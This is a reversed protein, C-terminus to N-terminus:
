GNSCYLRSHGRSHTASCIADTIIHRALYLGGSVVLDSIVVRSALTDVRFLATTDSKQISFASTSDVGNRFTNIGSFLQSTSRKAINSKDALDTTAIQVGNFKPLRGVTATVTGVNSINTINTVQSARGGQVGTSSGVLSLFETGNYYGLQKTDQDFYLQGTVAGDPKTSPAVVISGNVRLQGNISVTKAGGISVLEASTLEDFPIKVPSFCDVQRNSQEPKPQSLSLWIFFLILAFEALFIVATLKTRLPISKRRYRVSPRETSVQTGPAVQAIPPAPTPTPVTPSQSEPPAAQPPIVDFVPATTITQSGGARTGSNQTENEVGLRKETQKKNARLGLM